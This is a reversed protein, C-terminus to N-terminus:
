RRGGRLRRRHVLCSSDMSKTRDPWGTRLAFLSLPDTRSDSSCAAAWRLILTWKLMVADKKAISDKRASIKTMTGGPFPSRTRQISDACQWDRRNM